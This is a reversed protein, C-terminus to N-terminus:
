MSDTRREASSNIRFGGVDNVRCMSASPMLLVMGTWHPRRRSANFVTANLRETGVLLPTTAHAPPQYEPPAAPRHTHTPLRRQPQRVVAV